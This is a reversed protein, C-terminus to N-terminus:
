EDLAYIEIVGIGKVLSNAGRVIATYAANNGPLTTVIASENFSTPPITTDIIAQKNPSSQWNDNADLIVGQADRLELTPDSLKDELQLSSGIGRILMKRPAPGVVITGAILVNDGDSVRGRTSINAMRSEVKTDLDYIEVVGTGTTGNLGRVIATYATKGAPLTAIIASEFDNTPAVGSDIIAQKDPSNVWDDNSAILDNPGHLELTPNALPEPLGVASLSPGIARIIVKKPEVGGVIFGGILVNDGTEVRLRTSINGLVTPPAPTTPVFDFGAVAHETSSFVRHRGNSLDLAATHGLGSRFTGSQWWSGRYDPPLRLRLRGSAGIWLSGDDFSNLGSLPGSGLERVYDETYNNLAYKWFHGVGNSDGLVLGAPSRRDAITTAGTKQKVNKLQRTPGDFTYLDGTSVLAAFEKSGNGDLDSVVLGTIANPGTGMTTTSRWPAATSPYDFIYVAVSQSTTTTLANGAIIEQTGNGDLDAVEVLTFPSNSPQVPSSWKQAFNNAANFSFVDIEGDFATALIIEARGDGELDRVKLDNGAKFLLSKPSIARLALTEL